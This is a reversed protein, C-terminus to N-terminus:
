EVYLVLGKLYKGEPHYISYPHDAPQSLHHLIRINRGALIAASMVTSEFLRADIVQSCSFTFLFGGSAIKSLAALNIRKYGQVARHKVDIHKAFAPPDLIILDYKKDIDGLFSMADTAFSQHNNINEMLSVNENTLDIAKKSSDVSDVSKAGEALAYISFGGTYCYTNLVNKGNSYKGVLARNERQDIFFGTKQGEVWNVKFSHGNEIVIDEELSGLLFENSKEFPSNKPLSDECKYYINELNEKFIDILASAIVKRLFHMGFSHAQIVATKNYIDIILGPLGDGEAFILRYVNTNSNNVLGLSKRLEFASDIKNRWFEPDIETQIFSIIRVAISGNQYHGIGLFEDKNSVVTVLDGEQPEGIIKKIAGSFVWPHRRELSDAKGSKLIIKVKEMIM